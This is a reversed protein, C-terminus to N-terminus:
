QDAKEDDGKYTTTSSIKIKQGCKDCLEKLGEVFTELPTTDARMKLRLRNGEDIKVEEVKETIPIQITVEAIVTTTHPIQAM